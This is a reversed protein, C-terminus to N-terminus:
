RIFAIAVVAGGAVLLPLTMSHTIGQIDKEIGKVTRSIQHEVGKTTNKVKREFTHISNVLHHTVHHSPRHHIPHPKSTMHHAIHHPHHVM